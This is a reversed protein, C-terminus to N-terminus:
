KHTSERKAVHICYQPSVLFRLPKQGTVDFIFECQPADVYNHM